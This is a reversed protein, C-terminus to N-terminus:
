NIGNRTFKRALSRCACDIGCWAVLGVSAYRVWLSQVRSVFCVMELFLPACVVTM